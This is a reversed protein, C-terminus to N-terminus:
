SLSCSFSRLIGYSLVILSYTTEPDKKFKKSIIAPGMGLSFEMCYVKFLKAFLFHGLEHIFILLSLAILFLLLNSIFM